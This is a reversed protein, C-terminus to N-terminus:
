GTASSGTSNAQPLSITAGVGVTCGQAMARTHHRTNSRNLGLHNCHFKPLFICYHGGAAVVRELGSREAQFDPQSALLRRCCCSNDLHAVYGRQQTCQFVLLTMILSMIVSTSM